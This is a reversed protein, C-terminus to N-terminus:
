RSFWIVRKLFKLVYYRFWRFWLQKMLWGQFFLSDIGRFVKEKLSPLFIVRMHQDYIAVVEGKINITQMPKDRKWANDGKTIFLKGRKEILRHVISKNETKFLLIVGVTYNTRKAIKVMEGTEILPAMSDASVTGMINKM